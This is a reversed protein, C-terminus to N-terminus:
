HRSESASCSERAVAIRGLRQIARSAIAGLLSCSRVALYCLIAIPILFLCVVVLNAVGLEGLLMQLVSPEEQDSPAITRMAAEWDRLAQKRARRNVRWIHFLRLREALWCLICYLILLLIVVLEILVMM